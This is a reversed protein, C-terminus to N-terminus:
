VVGECSPELSSAALLAVSEVEDDAFWLPERASVEDLSIKYFCLPEEAETALTNAMQITGRLGRFPSYSTVYVRSGVPLVNEMIYPVGRLYTIVIEM